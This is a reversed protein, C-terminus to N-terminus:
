PYSALTEALVAFIGDADAEVAVSVPHPGPTAFSRADVVTMGRTASGSLEVHVRRQAFSFLHPHTIALVACPDHLAAGLPDNAAEAYGRRYFDLLDCVFTSATTDVHRLAAIRGEDARVTHTLELGCMVIRVGSGFVIAAAEPDCWANFEAVPTMNGVGASGGMLSIGALHEPLEPALRLALAVNTLPGTALLWLGTNARITDILFQVGHGPGVARTLPPLVPGDLGTKGHLEHADTREALLPRDAGAHVAVDLELIQATILANRTTADLGVNGNVTTVGLLHTHRGALAMAVADDHGPDCDLVTSIV